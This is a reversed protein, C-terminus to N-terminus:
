SNQLQIRRNAFQIPSLGQLSSHPRQHNYKEIWNCSIQKVEDLSHFWNMDMVDERYTRNFREILGNQAPKGPQIYLINIERNAAWQKFHNAIFEPGNDVRIMKPYGRMRALTDLLQTVKTAPLCYAPEILLAQCNYNDIVNLTRFKQSTCLADTMFNMSWCVNQLIPYVLAKAEGKPLRKRPKIRINLKLDCYV